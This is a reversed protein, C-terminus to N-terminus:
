WWWTKDAPSPLEYTLDRPRDALRRAPVGGYLSFPELVGRAVAGAALVVGEGVVTGPLVVVRPGLWARDGIRVPATEYAFDPSDWRHQATWVQVGTSLNVDRGIELGGRADLIAHDGVQTRAGISLRRAARVEFGHYVVADPDITAGLARLAGVRVRHNPVMGCMSLLAMEAAPRRRRLTTVWARTM